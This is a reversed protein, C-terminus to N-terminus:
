TSTFTNGGDTSVADSVNTLGQLDAYYLNGAPDNALASDGGGACTMAPKGLAAPSEDGILHFTQGGDESKWIFSATTSFGWPASVYVDHHGSANTTPSITLSPEGAARQHDVVVAHGFALGSNAAAARMTSAGALAL